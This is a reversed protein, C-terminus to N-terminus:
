RRWFPKKVTPATTPPTDATWQRVLLALVFAFVLLALVGAAAWALAMPNLWDPRQTDADM